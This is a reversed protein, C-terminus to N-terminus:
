LEWRGKEEERKVGKGGFHLPRIANLPPLFSLLSSDTTGELTVVLRVAVM